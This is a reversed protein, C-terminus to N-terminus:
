SSSCVQRLLGEPGCLAEAPHQADCMEVCTLTLACGAEACIEILGNYGDRGATNYYGATLEAGHSRSRFWWHIGAIKLTVDVPAGAPSEPLRLRRRVPCRLSPTEAFSPSCPCNSCPLSCRIAPHKFAAQFHSVAM